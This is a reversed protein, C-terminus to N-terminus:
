ALDKEAGAAKSLARERLLRRFDDLIEQDSQLEADSPKHFCKPCTPRDKMEGQWHIKTNCRRCHGDLYM